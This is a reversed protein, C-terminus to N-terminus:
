LSEILYKTIAELLPYIAESVECAWDQRKSVEARGVRCRALLGPYHEGMWIKFQLGDGKAYEGYGRTSSNVSRGVCRFSPPPTLPHLTM